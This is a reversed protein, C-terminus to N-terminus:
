ASDVFEAVWRCSGAVAANSACRTPDIVVSEAAYGRQTATGGPPEPQGYPLSWCFRGWRLESRRFRCFERPM